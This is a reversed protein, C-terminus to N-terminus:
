LISALDELTLVRISIYCSILNVLCYRIISVSRELRLSLCRRICLVVDDDSIHRLVENLSWVCCVEELAASKIRLHIDFVILNCIQSSSLRQNLHALVTCRSRSIIFAFKDSNSLILTNTSKLGVPNTLICNSNFISLSINYAKM